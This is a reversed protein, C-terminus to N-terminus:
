QSTKLVSKKPTKKPVEWRIEKTITSKIICHGSGACDDGWMSTLKYAVETEGILRGVARMISQDPDLDFLIEKYTQWENTSSSHDYFELYLITETKKKMISIVILL